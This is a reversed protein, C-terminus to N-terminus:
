HREVNDEIMPENLHSTYGYDEENYGPRLLRYLVSGCFAVVFCGNAVLTTTFFASAVLKGKGASLGICLFSLLVCFLMSFEVGNELGFDNCCGEDRSKLETPNKFPRAIAQILISFLLLITICQTQVSSNTPLSTLLVAILLRRLLMYVEIFARYKPKYPTVLPSLWNCIPSNDDSIHARYRLLLPLYIFFPVAIVYLILELVAVVTLSIHESGNCDIWVYGKMFSVSEITRCGVIVSFCSRVIPFYAVDIIIISYKRCKCNLEFHRQRSAKAFLKWIFYVLWILGNCVIPLSFLMLSKALVTFFTPIICALSSFCFNLTSSVYVQISYISKPWVDTTSILSDMIQLYFMATKLLATCRELHSSFGLVYIIIVIQLVVGPILHKLVLALILVVEALALFVALKLRKSSCLLIGISVVICGIAVGFLVGFETGKRQGKPCQYCRIGEKYYGDICQSCYRGHHGLLCLCSKNCHVKGQTILCGCRQNPVCIKYHYGSSPCKHISKVDSENPFPFYGQNLFMPSLPLQTNINETHNVHKIQLSGKAAGPCYGGGLCKHCIKGNGFFHENCYCYTKNYYSSNVYVIGHNHTFRLMPCTDSKRDKIIVADDLMFFSSAIPGTLRKNGQVNLETLMLLRSFTTPIPGSFDNDQLHLLTFYPLNRWPSPITGSLNNSGLKLFTLRKFNFLVGPLIGAINSRSIDIQMLTGQSGQLYSVITPLSCNYFPLHSAMFINLHKFQRNKAPEFGTFQNSSLILVRLELNFLERPIQGSLNNNAVNLVRLQNMMGISRPLIGKLKNNQLHIVSLNPCKEGIDKPIEGDIQNSSLFLHGLKALNLLITLNGKLGLAQFDLFWLKKLKAISSPISGTMKTEGLRLVTLHILDGISHQINGGLYSGSLELISLMPLSKAIGNPIKGEIYTYELNLRILYKPMKTIVNAFEGELWNMGLHFSLLFQLKTVDVSMEGTLNNERLYVGLVHKTRNDCLIGHWNCHFSTNMTTDNSETNWTTLWENGGLENYISLLVQRENQLCHEDCITMNWIVSPIELDELNQLPFYM